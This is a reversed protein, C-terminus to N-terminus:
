HLGEARMSHKLLFPKEPTQNKKEVNPELFSKPGAGARPQVLADEGHTLELRLRQRLQHPRDVRVEVPQVVHGVLHSVDM